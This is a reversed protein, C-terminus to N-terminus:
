DSLSNFLAVGATIWHEKAYSTPVRIFMVFNSSHGTTALVGRRETTRYCPCEYHPYTTLKTAEAPKLTIVCMPAFLVKPLAEDLMLDDNIRAGEIFLGHTYAGDEPPTDPREALFEFDFEVTDIPITYKRAFNQMVGTMFAQVFFFHPMQFVVPPGDDLWSQFFALRELLEAVYSSLPKLSPYSVKSWLVPLKNDLMARSLGELNADMVVLGKVAKQLNQLSGRVRDLLKNFKQLEQCIVTNKCETYMVPYRRQAVEYDFNPPLKNLIDKSMELMLEDFSKGGSGGGGSSQTILVTTLTQQVEKLDKTIDANDNFGFVEPAPVLPWQRVYEMTAEHSQLEDIPVSYSGSSTFAFGDKLIGECYINKVATTLTRRDKDDTVRGGYNCEATLYNLAALPVEEYLDLFMQLQRVSIRLDSENFEYPINWGLPGYKRREQLWAHLFCLGFLMKRFEDQKTCKAFFEPDSIPDGLYSGLINARLGKPPENTMKVGNQLILVPFAPSPYSTLWLRFNSSVTKPDMEEVLKELSVMWSVFVHCNQLVVWTGDKQGQKCMREAHPGQGQGLSISEVRRGKSEAFKLLSLMPDVGPSLIFVLPSTSTSDKFTGELDFPPPEIYKQGLETAVFQSITPVLKDLRITRLVLMKQFDTYGHTFSPLQDFVLSPEPADFFAKFGDVNKSFNSAFGQAFPLQGLCNVDQWMKETVWEEAPKKGIGAADLLIGGTLLYRWETYDLKDYGQLLAVCLLLSFVLKDKEFLSRCVNKYLFYQFYNNLNDMRQNLDSAPESDAIARVFLNTFWDLSYQYMPDIDSLLAICFYLLSTRYAVPKYGNRAQDIKIETEDAIKQKEAIENGLV